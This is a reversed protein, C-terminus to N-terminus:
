VEEADVRDYEAHTGLFRVYVARYLYNIQVVLRYDNGKVNFVVRNNRIFSANAYRSKVAAPTDWDANEAEKYWALLPQRADPHEEWFERLRKYTFIRM